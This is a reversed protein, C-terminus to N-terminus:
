ESIKIWKLEAINNLKAVYLKNEPNCGASISLVLFNGDDSVETGFNFAPNEPDKYVLVDQNSGLAHYKVMQNKNSDTETGAQDKQISHPSPFAHYFFGKDDHTWSICTFKAWEVPTEKLEVDPDTHKVHITV